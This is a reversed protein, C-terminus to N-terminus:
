GAACGERGWGGGEGLIGQGAKITVEFLEQEFQLVELMEKEALEDSAGLVITFEKMYTLYSRIISNNLGLPLLDYYVRNFNEQGPAVMKIVYVSSNRPDITLFISLFYDLSFGERNMNEYLDQWHIDEKNQTRKILEWRGLKTLLDFVPKLGLEDLTEHDQCMGYVSKIMRFAKIDSDLIPSSLIRRFMEDEKEQLITNFSEEENRDHVVKKKCLVAALLSM